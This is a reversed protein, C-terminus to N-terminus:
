WAHLQQRRNKAPRILETHLTYATQFANHFNENLIFYNKLM